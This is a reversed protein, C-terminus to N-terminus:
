SICVEAKLLMNELDADTLVSLIKDRNQYFLTKLQDRRALRDFEKKSSYLSGSVSNTDHKGDFYFQHRVENRGFLMLSIKKTGIASILYEGQGSGKNPHSFYVTDGVTVEKAGDRFKFEVSKAM